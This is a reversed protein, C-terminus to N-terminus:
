FLVGVKLTGNVEVEGGTGRRILDELDSIRQEYDTLLTSINVNGFILEGTNNVWLSNPQPIITNLNFMISNVNSLDGEDDETIIGNKLLTGTTNDFRPLANITSSPPGIINGSGSGGSEINNAGRFLLGDDRQWLTNPGGPNTSSLHFDVKKIQEVFTEENNDYHLQRTFSM